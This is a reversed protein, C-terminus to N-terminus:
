CASCHRVLGVASHGAGVHGGARAGGRGPSSRASRKAYRDVVRVCARVFSDFFSGYKIRIVLCTFHCASAGQGGAVFGLIAGVRDGGAVGAALASLQDSKSGGKDVHWKVAGLVAECAGAEVLLVLNAEHM